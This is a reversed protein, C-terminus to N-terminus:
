KKSTNIILNKNTISEVSNLVNVARFFFILEVTKSAMFFGAM